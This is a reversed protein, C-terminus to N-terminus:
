LMTEATSICRFAAFRSCACVAPSGGNSKAGVLTMAIYHVHGDASLAAPAYVPVVSSGTCGESPWPWASTQRHSPVM